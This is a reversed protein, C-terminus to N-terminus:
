LNDCLLTAHSKMRVVVFKARRPDDEHMNEIDFYRELEQMWDILM